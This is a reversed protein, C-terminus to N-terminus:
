CLVQLSRPRSVIIQGTTAIFDFAQDCTLIAGTFWGKGTVIIQWLTTIFDFAQDWTLM